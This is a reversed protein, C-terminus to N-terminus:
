SIWVGIWLFWVLQVFILEDAFKYSYFIEIPFSRVFNPDLPVNHPCNLMYTHRGPFSVIRSPPSQRSIKARRKSFLRSQPEVSVM